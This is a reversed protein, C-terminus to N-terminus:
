SRGPRERLPRPTKRDAVNESPELTRRGRPLDPRGGEWNTQQLRSPSAGVTSPAVKRRWAQIPMKIPPCLRWDPREESNPSSLVNGSSTLRVMAPAFPTGLRRRPTLHAPRASDFQAASVDERIEANIRRF